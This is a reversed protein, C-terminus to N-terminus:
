MQIGAPHSLKSDSLKLTFKTQLIRLTYNKLDYLYNLILEYCLQWLLSKELSMTKLVKRKHIMAEGM